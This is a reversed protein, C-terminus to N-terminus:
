SRFAVTAPCHEHNLTCHMPYMDIVQWKLSALLDYAAAICHRLALEMTRSHLRKASRRHYLRPVRSIGASCPRPGWLRREIAEINDVQSM